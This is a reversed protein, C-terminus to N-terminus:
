VGKKFEILLIPTVSDYLGSVISTGYKVMPDAQSLLFPSFGLCAFVILQLINFCELIYFYKCGHLYRVKLIPM